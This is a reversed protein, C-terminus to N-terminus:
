TCKKNSIILVIIKIFNIIGYFHTIGWIIDIILLNPLFFSKSGSYIIFGTILTLIVIDCFVIKRKMTQNNNQAYM